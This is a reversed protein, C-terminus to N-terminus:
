EKVQVHGSNRKYNIEEVYAEALAKVKKPHSLDDIDLDKYLSMFDDRSMYMESSRLPAFISDLFPKTTTVAPPL